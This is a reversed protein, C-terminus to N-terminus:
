CSLNRDCSYEFIIKLTWNLGLVERKKPCSMFASNAFARGKLKPKELLAIIKLPQVYKLYIQSSTPLSYQLKRSCLQHCISKILIAM